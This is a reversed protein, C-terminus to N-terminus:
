RGPTRFSIAALIEDLVQPLRRTVDEALFRLVLFGNKQLLFDKRRDRRYHEADDFHFVGDIEVALQKTKCLLDVEMHPNPGFPIPLYGNLLFLGKTQPLRDLFRFLFKEAASRAVGEGGSKALAARVFLDATDADIGDRGIRRISDAFSEDERLEVPLEIGEPWGNLSDNTMVMEYGIDRYGAARRNFMKNCMSVRQDLYDYIRVERKGDHCRHLRGAYQVLRGRWSIPLSLFLTDLRADDFGEGLYSGTALIIRTEDAPIAKLEERVSKLRRSGMGGRLVILHDAVGRLLAELIDLHDRRESIVVPSRGERVSEGVDSAIMRNRAVDGVLESVVESFKAEGEANLSVTKPVFPTPRVRVVHRFASFADMKKADVRYRVPGCEMEIIPHQGDKRVVTASLGLFYRASSAHVIREFSPASIAHCEDVVIQGYSKLSNVLFEDKMRVFTQMVAIDLRGNARGSGGGIRGIDNKAVDLFQSLREVWQSQLQRRNVLVLTSVKRAAIMWAALVTKGFATGAALVGTDHRMLENAALRQEERLAGAFQINDLTSGALRKDAISWEAGERKMTEFAGDLCGRPLILYDEGNISRDIVRPTNYVNLRLRQMDAYVPNVFAALRILRGRLSPTLETQRIYVANGLTIQVKGSLREAPLTYKHSLEGEGIEGHRADISQSSIGSHPNFLTWPENRLADEETQPALMRRESSARARITTLQADTVFPLESLFKWQDPYPVLRDDVFCANGVRRAAGQLPLAILNGFGGKPLRDQNPFIRDYSGLGVEPNREMTLTLVYTLVERVFRAPQPKDFFFWLHAGNGSRSRERAIPLGIEHLVDCISSSDSRWTSKDLDIAAFQVTDDALLPYVGVTFDRGKADAGRLHMRITGDDLPMLRRNPCVACSVRKKDCLGRTWEVACAPSYGCKGTKASVYRQAYVDERGRFMARFLRMKDEPSSSMTVMRGEQSVLEISM